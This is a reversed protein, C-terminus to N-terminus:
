SPPCRGEAEYTFCKGRNLLHLAQPRSVPMVFQLPFPSDGERGEAPEAPDVNTPHLGAASGNLLESIHGFAKRM